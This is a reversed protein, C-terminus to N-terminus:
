DLIKELRSKRIFEHISKYNTYTFYGVFIGIVGGVMIDEWRHLGLFIRSLSVLIALSIFTFDFKRKNSYLLAVTMAAFIIAAHGSPFSFDNLCYELGLCPRQIQFLNKTINVLGWSIVIAPLVGFIFWNFYFKIKRPLVMNFILSITVAGIWFYIDGFISITKWFVLWGEM